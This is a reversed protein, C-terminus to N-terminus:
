SPSRRRIMRATEPQFPPDDGDRDKQGEQELAGPGGAGREVLLVTGEAVDAFADEEVRGEQRGFVQLREVLLPDAVATVVTGDLVAPGDEPVPGLM